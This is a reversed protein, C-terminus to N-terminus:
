LWFLAAKSPNMTVYRRVPEIVLEDFMKREEVSARKAPYVLNILKKFM